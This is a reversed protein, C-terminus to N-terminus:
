FAQITKIYLIYVWRSLFCFEMLGRRQRCGRQCVATQGKHKTKQLTIPEKKWLGNSTLTHLWTIACAHVLLLKCSYLFGADQSLTLGNVCSNDIDIALHHCYNPTWSLYQVDQLWNPMPQLFCCINHANERM